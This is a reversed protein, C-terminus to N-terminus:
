AKAKKSLLKLYVKRRIRSTLGHMKWLSKWCCRPTSAKLSLWDVATVNKGLLSMEAVDKINFKRVFPHKDFDSQNVLPSLDMEIDSKAILNVSEKAWTYLLPMQILGSDRVYGAIEKSIEINITSLRDEEYQLGAPFRPSIKGHEDKEYGITTPYHSASYYHAALVTLEYPQDGNGFYTIYKGASPPFTDARSGYYYFEVDKYGKKRLISNIMLRTTGLWGVDVLASPTSDFLYEQRFYDILLNRTEQARKQLIPTYNSDFIKNLFDTEQKKSGVRYYDFDIGLTHMEERSTGLHLLLKDINDRHIITHHDAAEIYEKAGGDAVYPVYLARRSVFLYRLEIEPFDKAFVEAIRMLIYSDRSLFYLRRIGRARADKLVFLVYPIYAPAVFDAALAAHPTNKAKIRAARSFSILQHWGCDNRFVRGTKLLAAEAENYSTDILIAKIGKRRAMKVDSRRNDGYHRWFTPKLEQRVIDYLLGSDKRSAYECSVFVPEEPKACGERILIEKLFKSDLYMDSVFAIQYGEDRKSQILAKVNPNAMLNEAEIAKETEMMKEKTHEGFSETDLFSYMEELSVEKGNYAASTQPGVNLRWLLFAERKGMDNPYLRKALLQFLSDKGCRRILTTDFIDFSALKMAKDVV